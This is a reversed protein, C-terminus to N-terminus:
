SARYEAKRGSAKVRPAHRFFHELLVQDLSGNYVFRAYSDTALVAQTPFYFTKKLRKPSLDRLLNYDKKKHGQREEEDTCRSNQNWVTRVCTSKVNFTNVNTKLYQLALSWIAEAGLGVAKLPQLCSHVSVEKPSRERQVIPAARWMAKGAVRKGQRGQLNRLLEYSAPCSRGPCLAGPSCKRQCIRWCGISLQHLNYWSWPWWLKQLPQFCVSSDPFGYDLHM